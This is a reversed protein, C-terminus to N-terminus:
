ITGRKLYADYKIEIFRDFDTTVYHISERWMDILDQEFYKLFEDFTM